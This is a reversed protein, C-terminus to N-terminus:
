SGADGIFVSLGPRGAEGPTSLGLGDAEEVLDPLRDLPVSEDPVPSLTRM